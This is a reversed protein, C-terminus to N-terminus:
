SSVYEPVYTWSSSEIEAALPSRRRRRSARNSRRRGGLHPPGRVVYDAGEGGRLDGVDDAQGGGFANRHRGPARPRAEGAPRHRDPAPDDEVERPHVPDDLHIQRIQGDDDLRPDDLGPEVLRQLGM